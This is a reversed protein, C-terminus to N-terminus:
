PFALRVDPLADKLPRQGESTTLWQDEDRGIAELSLWELKPLSAFTETCNPTLCSQSVIVVRLRPHGSLPRIAADSLRLGALELEELKPLERLRSCLHTWQAETPEDFDNCDIRVRRLEPLRLLETGLDGTLREPYYLEFERVRRFAVDFVARHLWNPLEVHRHIWHGLRDPEDIPGFGIEKSRAVTSTIHGVTATAWIIRATAWLFLVAAIALALRTPKPVRM